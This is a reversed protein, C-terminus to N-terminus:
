PNLDKTKQSARIEALKEKLEKGKQEFCISMQTSKRRSFNEEMGLIKMNGQGEATGELLSSAPHSFRVDVSCHKSMIIEIITYTRSYFKHLLSTYGGILFM